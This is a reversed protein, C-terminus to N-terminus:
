KTTYLKEITQIIKGSEDTKQVIRGWSNGASYFCSFDNRNIVPSFSLKNGPIDFKMGSLAVLLGYSAMSRAYHNGCEIENWPNRNYGNYRMRTTKVISFAEAIFDEYILHVAVQYEIGTWVEDSYPFPIAPREGEGFSCLLLGGENNIAYTRQLNYHSSVSSRYNNKYVCNIAQRVHSKPLIYGLGVIHALEQGLLQDSLCGNGYQYRYEDLNDCKQCYYRGNWLKEDMNLKAASYIASYKEAAEADSLAEAMQVAAKLAALLLSNTLPEIGFFEIDYTNHMASDMLFDGDTDWSRLAYDVAKKVNDWLSEIISNDESLKWERYLRIVCGMQGDAAAPEDNPQHGFKKYGRFNMKGDAETEVTFETTRMSRELEPFLFAVAQAYNWVHTCNGECSGEKDFCGEWAMFAGDELRFCTPSRMVTINSAVADIVYCPLTSSYLTDSFLRSMGELSELKANIYRATEFSNEFLKAYYNRVTPLESYDCKRKTKAEFVSKSWSNIRTPLNWTIYFTIERSSFPELAVERAISAVGGCGNYSVNKETYVSAEELKGDSLFDNWFDQLGDWFGGDLWAKKYTVDHSDTALTMDGNTLPNTNEDKKFFLGSLSDETKFSVEVAEAHRKYDGDMIFCDEAITFKGMSGAIAASVKKETKNTLTYKLIGCPISSNDTDLPILPNFAELTVDVPMEKDDLQIKVFPLKGMMKCNEFRPLGMHENLGVSDMYPPPIQGELVRARPKEGAVSTRLSFFTYCMHNGKGPSNWIEWDKLQGRSGLSFNGTGIGGIPFAAATAKEDLWAPEWKEECNM